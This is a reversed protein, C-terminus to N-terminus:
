LLFGGVHRLNREEAGAAAERLREERVNEVDSTEPEVSIKIRFTAEQAM